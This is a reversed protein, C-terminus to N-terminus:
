RALLAFAWFGLATLIALAFSWALLQNILKRRDIGEPAAAVCLAGITSLPSMDVLNGGILVALSLAFPNAGPQSAALDEVMPLFAPLVVGTTSSYISVLGTVLALLGSLTNPTSVGGILEALRATGGTQDVIASLVSVGCVMVIVSWPLRAFAEREDALRLLSVVTAGALAVAGVHWRALAVAVVVAAIVALTLWHRSEFAGSTAALAKKSVAEEDMSAADKQRRGFLRWGGMLLFGVGAAAANALANAAYVQWENGALGMNELIQDAVVGAATLPSLTSAIAGHGVLLAMLLPPIGTRQAAAMALPALIGAVAINGPGASGLALALVFFAIPILGTNGRTLQQAATAVRVLTGNVEAQSFLLCVGLLTLFLEGPFASWLAKLGLSTTFWYGGVAVITWALVVAAVGPNVRAWCSIVVVILLAALSLWALDM